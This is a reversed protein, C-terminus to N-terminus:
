AIEEFPIQVDFMEVLGVGAIPTFALDGIAVKFLDGFPTRLYYTDQAERLAELEMRKLRSAGGYDRVKCTITGTYGLRTGYDKKRGRGILTYTSQEWQDTFPADTVNTLKINLTEDDESLIWYNDTEVYYANTEAYWIQDQYSASSGPAGLWEAGSSNGDFYDKLTNTKEILLGDLDLTDNVTWNAASTGSVALVQLDVRDTSVPAVAAINTLRTWSNADVVVQDGSTNTSLVTGSSDRWTLQLQLRQQKSSRVYVSATVTDGPAVTAAQTTEYAGGSVATTSTSWLMRAFANGYFGGASVRSTSGAGGTGPVAVFETAGYEASPNPAFNTRAINLLQSYYGLPSELLTSGNYATQTVTYQYTQGSIVLWDHYEDVNIDVIEALLTWSDEGFIRRFVKWSNFYPDPQMSSWDILVYGLDNVQSADVSYVVVDPVTYQTHIHSYVTSSLGSTDKVTLAIVFDQSNTLISSNPTHSRTTSDTGSITYVTSGDGANTIAISWQYQSRTGSPTYTWSITPTGSAVISNDVPATLTITPPDGQTFLQYSSYAGAVDDTDWVRIKWRLTVDKPAATMDRTYTNAASVVKGTDFVSAGTDNRECIIQYATQTDQLSTDSFTWSFQNTTTSAIYAGANPSFNTTTPPHSITFIQTTTWASSLTYGDKTRARIYWTGQPRRDASSITWSHTGLTYSLLADAETFTKLNTTFGSDSAVQWEVKLPHWSKPPTVVATITPTSTNVTTSDAPTVSTPAAPTGITYFKRSASWPGQNSAADYTRVQIEYQKEATFTGGVATWSPTTTAANLVQTWTTTGVERYQVDAKSQTDGADPDSFTWGFVQSNAVNVVTNEAPTLNTPAYSPGTVTFTRTTSFPSWLGAADRTQVRWNYSFGPAFKNAPSTYSATLGSVAESTWTSDTTKKWQFYAYGQSDGSDPDSFTWDFVKTSSTIFSAGDPTSTGLAPATPTRNTYFDTSAYGSYLGSPDQAFVRVYYHTDTDLGTLTYSATSGSSVYGSYKDTYSTFSSSTSYRVLMRVNDGDPDSLHASVTVSGMSRTNTGAAPSVSTPTSPAVNPDTWTIVIQGHGTGGTGRENVGGTLAGHYNSGGGGGTAPAYGQSSGCGGGGSFYGGGGGGGGGGNYGGTDGGQGGAGLSTASGDSGNFASGSSSTGGAGGASQTGGRGPTTSGSGNTGTGGDAGTTTGGAGGAGGDHSDGGAGAAIFKVTGSTSGLRCGSYGGGGWGGGQNYGNGGKGGAGWGGSGGATGSPSGGQGGVVLYLVQGPSVALSGTVKGAARTNSGAGVCTVSISTVGSPVTWTQWSGTYNFTSSPM